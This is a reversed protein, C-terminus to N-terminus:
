KKLVREMMQSTWVLEMPPGVEEGYTRTFYVRLRDHLDKSDCLKACLQGMLTKQYKKAISLRLIYSVVDVNNNYGKYKITDFLLGLDCIWALPYLYWMKLERICMAIQHFGFFDARSKGWDEPTNISRWSTANNTMFKRKVMNMFFKKLRSKSGVVLLLATIGTAQDRTLMDDRYFKSEKNGSRRYDGTNGVEHYVSAMFPDTKNEVPKPALGVLSRLLQGMAFMGERQAQDGAGGSKMTILGYDDIHDAWDRNM